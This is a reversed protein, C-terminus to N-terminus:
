LLVVKMSYTIRIVFLEIISAYLKKNENENKFFFLKLYFTTSADQFKLKRELSNERPKGPQHFYLFKLRRVFAFSTWSNVEKYNLSDVYWELFISNRIECKKVILILNKRQRLHNTVFHYLLKSFCELKSVRLVIYLSQNQAAAVKAESM